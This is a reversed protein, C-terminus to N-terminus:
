IIEIVKPEDAFWDFEVEAFQGAKVHEAFLRGTRDGYYTFRGVRSYTKREPSSWRLVLGQCCLKNDRDTRRTIEVVLCGAAQEVADIEAEQVDCHMEANVYCVFPKGFSKGFGLITVEDKFKGPSRLPTKTRTAPATRAALVLRGSGERILGFPATENAPETECSLIEAVCESPRCVQGFQVPGNVSLWSWSPGQYTTPRPINKPHVYSHEIKWLLGSHFYSKWLGAIYHDGSLESFIQAIGSIALARDSSLTLARETFTECIKEWHQMANVYQKFQSNRPRGYFDITSKAAGINELDLSETKRKSSYNVDRKWGDTLGERSFGSSRTAPCIWRTQRSGFEIIRSSLLREQLTWGREDIPEVSEFGGDLKVLTISGLEGDFCRYPVLAGKRPGPFREGLFGDTASSSRAAVITVTASGYISTMKAIEVAKDTANDQIICLADIWLYQLGIGQCVRAADKITQPQKEFPIATGYLIINSSDCKMPQEGGWCYSLAAFPVRGVEGTQRLRLRITECTGTIEVLRAPMVGPKTKCNHHELCDNLWSSIRVLNTVSGPYRAIPRNSVTSSCRDGPLAFVQFGHRTRYVIKQTIPDWLGFFQIHEIDLPNGTGQYTSAWLRCHNLSDGLSPHIKHLTNAPCPKPLWGDFWLSSDRFAWGLTHNPDDINLDRRALSHITERSIWEDDMVWNFLQCGAAAGACFQGFTVDFLAGKEAMNENPQNTEPQPNAGLPGRELQGALDYVAKASKEFGQRLDFVVKQCQDCSHTQLQVVDEM